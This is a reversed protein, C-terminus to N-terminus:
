FPVTGSTTATAVPAAAAPAPTATQPRPAIQRTPAAAVPARAPIRAAKATLQKLFSSQDGIPASKKLPNIWRVRLGKEDAEVVISCQKNTIQDAATEFNGDFDFAERLTKLAMEFIKGEKRDEDTLPPEVLKKPLNVWGLISGEDTEFHIQIYSRGSQATGYEASSVTAQYRGPNQLKTSM